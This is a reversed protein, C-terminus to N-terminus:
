HDILYYMLAKVDFHRRIVKRSSWFGSILLMRFRIYPIAHILVKMKKTSKNEKKPLIAASDDTEPGKGGRGVGGICVSM